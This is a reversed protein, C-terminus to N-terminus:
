RRSNPKLVTCVVECSTLTYVMRCWQADVPNSPPVYPKVPAPAAYLALLCLATLSM